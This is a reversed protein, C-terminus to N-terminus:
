IKDNINIKLDDALGKGIIIGGHNSESILYEQICSEKFKTFNNLSTITIIKYDNDKSILYKKTKGTYVDFQNDLLINDNLEGSYTFHFSEMKKFISEEM